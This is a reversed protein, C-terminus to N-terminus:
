TAWRFVLFSSRQASLVLGSFVAWGRSDNHEFLVGLVCLAILGPWTLLYGTALGGLFAVTWDIM